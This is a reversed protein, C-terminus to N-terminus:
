SCHRFYGKKSPTLGEENEIRAKERGRGMKEIGFIRSKRSWGGVVERRRVLSRDDRASWEERRSVSWQKRRRATRQSLDGNM